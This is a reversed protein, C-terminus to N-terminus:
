DGYSVNVSSNQTLVVNASVEDTGQWPNGFSIDSLDGSGSLYSYNGAGDKYSKFKIQAINEITKTTPLTSDYLDIWTAGDDTSYYALGSWDGSSQYTYTVTVNYGTAQKVLNGQTIAWKYFEASVTQSTSLTITKYNDDTWSSDSAAYVTTSTDIDNKDTWYTISSGVYGLLEYSVNNSTFNLNLYNETQPYSLLAPSDKWKYTGAELTVTSAAKSVTVGASKESDRYGTGKAVIKITHNGPALNTWGSLTTLDVSKKVTAAESVLTCAMETPSTVTSFPITVTNGSVSGLSSSKLSYGSKLNITLTIDSGPEASFGYQEGSTTFTHENSGYSFNVSQIGNDFTITLSNLVNVM